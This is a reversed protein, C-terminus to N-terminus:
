SPVHCSVPSHHKQQTSISLTQKHFHALGAIIAQDEGFVKDGALEFFDPMLERIYDLTHPRDEHRAIQTKQWPTLRQYAREIFRNLKNNLRKVESEPLNPDALREDVLRINEEFDLYHM